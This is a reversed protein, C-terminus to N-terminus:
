ELAITNVATNISNAVITNKSSSPFSSSQIMNFTTQFPPKM